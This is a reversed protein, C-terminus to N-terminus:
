TAPAPDPIEDEVHVVAPSRAMGFLAAVVVASGVIEVPGLAEGFFIWAGIGVFAPEALMFPASVSAPLYRHAWVLLIHATTGVAMTAAAWAYQSGTLALTGASILAFPTILVAASTLVGLMFAFPDVAYRHRLVRGYLYWGATLFLSM